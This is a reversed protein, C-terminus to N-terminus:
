SLQWGWPRLKHGQWLQEMKSLNVAVRVLDQDLRREFAVIDPPSDLLKVPAGYQGAALAPHQHKLAALSAYFDSLEYTKWDIADKEFFELKKTLRSEQGNYVLPMGPLTFTLVALAPYADGYLDADTGHWSNFDHNSTFRMRYAHAPFGAPQKALWEKLRPAGAEGKGIKKFVQDALDWSYTVDFAGSTHLDIADSEALMFMPKVA